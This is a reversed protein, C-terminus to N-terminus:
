PAHIGEEPDHVAAHHAALIERRKPKYQSTLLGNDISFPEEAVIVRSIREDRTLAANTLALRAAVAALDAPVAAPSVVAVLETQGPCFLVCDAIARDAKLHEEIPRVIVKRGNDLVIVDDARGHVFLFGDEDLHGLDGTRVTGDAAFVRESDGPRSYLYRTNVPHESRVHIVGDADILLEKGRLAQGVSGERHAKPHNKTVICTENLGYGEFIPLGAEEFFRLTEPPAPASGTWLYRVRDGFVAKAAEDLSGARRRRAEIQRKATEYFAPVGMVVTPRTRRLAAFAAEYTSVTVDHGHLLASYIWYRQQLLSLPLFVFLDDGPGHEFIEQVARLSSDISGARAGLGKPEGTSGSTFKVTTIEEPGWTVPPLSPGNDLEEREAAETVEATSVVSPAAVPRDTFLLKLGYRDLLRADPTFKGPELGATEAKLRLAALDLLVWAPGNAALIGIRDGPGIGRERLWRAVRGSRRYLDALELTRTGQLGAFAIRGAAPERSVLRGITDQTM